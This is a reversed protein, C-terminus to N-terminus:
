LRASAARTHRRDAELVELTRAHVACARSTNEGAAQKDLITLSSVGLRRLEAALALGPRARGGRGCRGTPTTDM